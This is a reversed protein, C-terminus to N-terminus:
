SQCFTSLIVPLLALLQDFNGLHKKTGPL